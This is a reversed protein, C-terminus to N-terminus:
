TPIGVMGRPFHLLTNAAVTVEGFRVTPFVLRGNGETNQADKVVVQDDM